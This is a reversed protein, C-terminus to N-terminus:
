LIRCGGFRFVAKPSLCFFWGFNQWKPQNKNYNLYRFLEYLRHRLGVRLFPALVQSLFPTVGIYKKNKYASRSLFAMVTYSVNTTMNRNPVKM